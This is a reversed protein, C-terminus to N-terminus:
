SRRAGRVATRRHHGGARIRPMTLIMKGADPARVVPLHHVAPTSRGPPLESRPWNTGAAAPPSKPFRGVVFSWVQGVATRHPRRDGRRRHQDRRFPTLAANSLGSAARMVRSGAAGAVVRSARWSPCGARSIGTALQGQGVEGTVTARRGGASVQACQLPLQTPPAARDEAARQLPKSQASPLRDRSPADAPRGVWGRISFSSPTTVVSSTPFLSLSCAFWLGSGVESERAAPM